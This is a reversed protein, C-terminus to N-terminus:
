GCQEQGVRRLAATTSGSSPESTPNGTTFFDRMGNIVPWRFAVYGPTPAYHASAYNRAHSRLTREFAAASLWLREVASGFDSSLLSLSMGEGALAATSGLYALLPHVFSDPWRELTLDSQAILM